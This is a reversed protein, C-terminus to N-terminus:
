VCLLQFSRCFSAFWLVPFCLYLFCFSHVLSLYRDIFFKRHYLLLYKNMCIIIGGLYAFAMRALDAKQTSSIWLFRVHMRTIAVSWFAWLAEVTNLTNCTICRRDNMLVCRLQVWALIFLLKEVWLRTYPYICHRFIVCRKFWLFAVVLTYVYIFLRLPM